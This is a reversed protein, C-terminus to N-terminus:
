PTDGADAFVRGALYLKKFFLKKCPLLPDISHSFHELAIPHSSFTNKNGDSQYTDSGL